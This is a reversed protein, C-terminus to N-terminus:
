PVIAVAENSPLSPGAATLAIVRLYYTGSPVAPATLSTTAVPLSAINATLPGSGAELRYGVAGPVATWSITLAAGAVSTTLVPSAPIGAGGFQISTDPGIASRGCPSDATVRLYYVGPPAAASLTRTAGMNLSALNSLGPGTGAELLYTGASGVPEDWTLTLTNNTGDVHTDLRQPPAGCAPNGFVVGIEGSPASVGAANVARVRLYYRGPPVGAYSFFPGATPLSGINAGGPVTSAEVLYSTPTGGLPGPTWRMTFSSGNAVRVMPTSPAGPIGAMAVDPFLGTNQGSLGEGSAWALLVGALDRITEGIAGSAAPDFSRTVLGTAADVAAVGARADGNVASFQGALYVTSGSVEVDNM